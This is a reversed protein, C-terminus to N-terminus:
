FSCLPAVNCRKLLQQAGILGLEETKDQCDCAVALVGLVGQLFGEYAGVFGAAM